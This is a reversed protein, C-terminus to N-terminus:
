SLHPMDVRQGRSDFVSALVYASGHAAAHRFATAHEEGPLLTSQREESALYTFSRFSMGLEDCIDSAAASAYTEDLAKVYVHLIVNAPAGDSSSRGGDLAAAIGVHFLKEDM